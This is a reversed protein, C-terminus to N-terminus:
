AAARRRSTGARVAIVAVVAAALAAVALVVGSDWKTLSVTRTSGDAAETVPVNWESPAPFIDAPLKEQQLERRAALRERVDGDPAPALADAAVAASLDVIYPEGYFASSAVSEVWTAPPPEVEYRAFAALLMERIEALSRGDAERTVDFIALQLRVKEDAAPDSSGSPSAM